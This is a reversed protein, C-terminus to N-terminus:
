KQKMELTGNVYAVSTALRHVAGLDHSVLLIACERNLEELLRYLSAESDPDMYTAPEDLVLLQPNGIVARGLLARQLQGGSLAGISSHELGQLGMRAIVTAARQYDEARYRSALPKQGSLGSLVTEEVTIPFRRDIAAYQPLYGMPLSRSHSTACAAGSPCYRLEGSLPAILGLICRLLTTKGGGNPGVIGLFDCQHISLNVDRLVVRGDYGASLRVIEILPFSM